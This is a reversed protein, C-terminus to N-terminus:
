TTVPLLQLRVSMLLEGLRNTGPVGCEPRSRCHCDGWYNDHWTNGEILVAPHTLVLRSRLTPAAFKAQLLELMVADREVDWNPIMPLDRRNGLQKAQAPTRAKRIAAIWELDRTKAAQYAHEVTHWTVGRWVFVSESFNSLFRYTGKFETIVRPVKDVAETM